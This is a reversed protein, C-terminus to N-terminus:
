KGILSLIAKPNFKDILIIGNRDVLYFTPNGEALLRKQYDRNKEGNKVHLWNTLKHEKIFTNWKSHDPTNIFAISQLDIKKNNKLSNVFTDVEPMKEQCHICDPDYFAIFTYDHKAFANPSKIKNGDMREMIFDPLKSGVPLDDLHKYENLIKHYFTKYRNICEVQNLHSNFITKYAENLNYNGFYNINKFLWSLLFKFNRSNCNQGKLILNASKIYNENNIPLTKIFRFLCSYANPLLQFYKGHLDISSFYTNRYNELAIIEIPPKEYKM